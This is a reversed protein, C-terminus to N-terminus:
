CERALLFADAFGGCADFQFLSVDVVSLTPPYSLRSLPSCSPSADVLICPCLALEVAGNDHEKVRADLRMGLEM